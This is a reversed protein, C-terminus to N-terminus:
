IKNNKILQSSANLDSFQFNRHQPVELLLQLLVESLLVQVATGRCPWFCVYPAFQFFRRWLQLYILSFATMSIVSAYKARFFYVFLQWYNEVRTWWTVHNFAGANNTSNVRFSSQYQNTQTAQTYAQTTTLTITIDHSPFLASKNWPNSDGKM